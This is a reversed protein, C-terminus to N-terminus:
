AEWGSEVMAALTCLPAASPPTSALSMRSGPAPFGSLYKSLSCSRSCVFSAASTKSAISRCMAGSRVTMMGCTLAVTPKRGQRTTVWSCNSPVRTRRRNSGSSPHSGARNCSLTCGGSTLHRGRTRQWARKRKSWLEPWAAPPESLLDTVAIGFPGSQFPLSGRIRSPQYAWGRPGPHGRTECRMCNTSPSTSGVSMVTGEPM